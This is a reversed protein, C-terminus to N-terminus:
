LPGAVPGSRVAGLLGPRWQCQGGGAPRPPPWGRAAGRPGSGAAGASAAGRLRRPPARGLGSRTGAAGASSSCRSRRRRGPPWAAGELYAGRPQPFPSAAPAPPRPLPSSSGPSSDQRARGLPTPQSSHLHAHGDTFRSPQPESLWSWAPHVSRAARLSSWPLFRASRPHHPPPSGEQSSPPSKENFSRVGNGPGGDAPAEHAWPHCPPRWNQM